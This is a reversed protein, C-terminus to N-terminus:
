RLTLILGKSSDAFYGTDMTTYDASIVFIQDGAIIGSSIDFFGDTEVADNDQNYYEYMIPVKGKKGNCLNVLNQLKFAM